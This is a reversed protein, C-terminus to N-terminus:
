YGNLIMWDEDYNSSTLDPQAHAWKLWWTVLPIEIWIMFCTNFYHMQNMYMFGKFSSILIRLEVVLLASNFCNLYKLETENIMMLISMEKSNYFPKLSKFM